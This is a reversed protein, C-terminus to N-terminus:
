KRDNTFLIKRFFSARKVEKGSPFPDFDEVIKRGSERIRRAM